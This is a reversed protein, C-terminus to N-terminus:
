RVTSVILYRGCRTCRIQPRIDNPTGCKPCIPNLTFLPLGVQRWVIPTKPRKLRLGTNTWHYHEAIQKYYRELKKSLKGYKARLEERKKYIPFEFHGIEGWEVMRPTKLQVEIPLGFVRVLLHYARYGGRPHTIYDEEEVVDFDRQIRKLGTYLSDLTPFIVRAGAIDTLSSIPVGKRVVKERISEESKLRTSVKGPFMVQLKNGIYSLPRQYMERYSRVERVVAPHGRNPPM